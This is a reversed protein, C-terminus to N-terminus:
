SSINNDICDQTGYNILSNKLEKLNDSFSKCRRRTNLLNEVDFKISSISNDLWNHLTM